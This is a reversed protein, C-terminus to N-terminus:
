KKFYIKFHDDFQKQSMVETALKWQLADRSGLRDGADYLEKIVKASKGTAECAVKYWRKNYEADRQWLNKLDDEDYTGGVVVMEAKHPAIRSEHLMFREQGALFIQFASSAAYERVFTVVPSIANKLLNYIMIGATASGGHSHGIIVAIPERGEEDMTILAVAVQIFTKQTIPGNIYIIRKPISAKVRSRRRVTRTLEREM